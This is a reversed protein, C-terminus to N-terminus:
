LDRAVRFGVRPSTNDAAINLRYASRVQEPGSAWSAGRVVRRSCGPNVWARGDSPARSYTSHWCDETWESVNGDLDHVAFANAPFSRVPAIGFHGDTDGPFANSWQRRQPSRDGATSVNALPRDPAGDGCPYRGASGARLAYEFEAESPLRYALGSSQALWRAYAEADSWAVHIVPHTDAAEGGTEDNRWDIGGRERMSGSREDYITSARSREARTRHGTAEVFRRYQAVTVEAQALAFGRDFRVRFQPGENARRDSEDDPSGMLFSGVQIVVMAPGEGGADLPDQFVEGEARGGYLRVNRVRERVLGAGTIEPAIALAQELLAEGDDASGQDLRGHADRLLSAAAQNRAAAVAARADTLAQLAEPDVAAARELLGDAAEFEGAGAAAV